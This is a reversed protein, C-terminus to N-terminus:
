PDPRTAGCRMPAPPAQFPFYSVTIHPTMTKLLTRHRTGATRDGDSQAIELFSHLRPHLGAGIGGGALHHARGDSGEIPLLRRDIVPQSLADIFGEGISS